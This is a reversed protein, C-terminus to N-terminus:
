KLLYKGAIPIGGDGGREEVGKQMNAALGALATGDVGEEDCARLITRLATLQMGLPNGLSDEWREEDLIEAMQSLYPVLSGVLPIMAKNVGPTARPVVQEEGAARRQRKLLAMGVFAGSFLGYMASLAALDVMSAAGPDAGEYVARGFPGLLEPVGKDTFTQESEGSYMIVMHPTAVMSPTGMIGGDFYLSAGKEKFWAEADRGQQPTGTTLNVITKGRLSPASASLAKYMTDYDLLCIVVVGDNGALAANVDAELGAGADVLGTVQPRDTTRNWVTIPTGAKLLAHGLAAGMNGIGVLTIRQRSM